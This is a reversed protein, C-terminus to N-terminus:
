AEDHRPSRLMAENPERIAEVAARADLRAEPMYADVALHVDHGAEIARRQDVSRRREAIARAVEELKTM